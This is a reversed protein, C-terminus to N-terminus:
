FMSVCVASGFVPARSFINYVDSLPVPIQPNTHTHFQTKFNREFHTSQTCSCTQELSCQLLSMLLRPPLSETPSYPLVGRFPFTLMYFSFIFVRGECHRWLNLSANKGRSVQKIQEGEKNGCGVSDFCCADSWLSLPGSCGFWRVSNQPSLQCSSCGPTHSRPCSSQLTSRLSLHTVSYVRNAVTRHASTHLVSRRTPIM